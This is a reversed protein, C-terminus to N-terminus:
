IPMQVNQLINNSVHTYIETTKSSKHGAISQIVRLDTGNELLHTFCNHRLQHMHANYSIYKKIIKNCSTSSYKNSFQGNFLYEYPKYVLYYNRLIELLDNSLPVYRDKRGKTQKIAILMRKSDIDEIKLNTVESVRLGCSYALSLIAKHKLNDISLIKSKLIDKDIIHPLKREKRPRKFNVKVYKRNLVKEYLFKIASIIQNQQSSSSFSYNDLYDQFDNGTIHKYNKRITNLFESVYYLYIKNTNDSYRFYKLKEFYIKLIKDQKLKM